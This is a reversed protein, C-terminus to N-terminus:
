EKCWADLYAAARRDGLEDARSLHICISEPPDDQNTKHELVALELHAKGIQADLVLCAQLDAIAEDFQSLRQKAMARYYFALANSKELNISRNLDALARKNQDKKLRVVGSNLFIDAVNGNLSAAKDYDALAKDPENQAQYVHGRNLFPRYDRADLEISKTFDAEAEAYKEQSFYISGRLNYAEANKGAQTVVKNILNLAQETQGDRLLNRAEQLSQEINAQCGFLGSALIVLVVLQRM